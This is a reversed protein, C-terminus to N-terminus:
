GLSTKEGHAHSTSPAPVGIESFHTTLASSLAKKM